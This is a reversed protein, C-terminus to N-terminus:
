AERWSLCQVRCRTRWYGEPRRRRRALGGHQREPRCECSWPRWVLPHLRHAPSRSIVLGLGAFTDLFSGEVPDIITIEFVASGPGFADDSPPSLLVIRGNPSCTLGSPSAEIDVSGAGGKSHWHFLPKGDPAMSVFPKLCADEAAAPAAGFAVFGLLVTSAIRKVVDMRYLQM